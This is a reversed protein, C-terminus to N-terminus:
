VKALTRLLKRTADRVKGVNPDFRSLVMFSSVIGQFAQNAIVIEADDLCHEPRSVITLATLQLDILAELLEDHMYDVMCASLDSIVVGLWQFLAAKKILYQSGVSSKQLVQHLIDVIWLQTKGNESHGLSWSQFSSMLISLVHRRLLITVDRDDAIGGCRLFHLLWSREQQQHMLNAASAARKTNFAFLTYFMPVDDLEMPRSLLFQNVSTYLVHTPRQLVVLADQMFNTILAPIIPISDTKASKEIANTQLSALTIRLSELLLHIQRASKSGFLVKDDIDASLAEHVCAVIGFSHKRIAEDHSSLGRLALALLSHHIIAAIDLESRALFEVIVPFLTAPDYIQDLKADDMGFSEMVSENWHPLTLHLDQRTDLARTYPFSAITSRSRISTISSGEQFLLQAVPTPTDICETESSITDLFFAQTSFIRMKNETIEEIRLLLVRTLRDFSSLSMSYIECLALFLKKISTDDTADSPITAHLFQLITLSNTKKEARLYARFHNHNVVIRLSEFQVPHIISAGVQISRTYLSVTSRLELVSSSKLLCTNWSEIDIRSPRKTSIISQAFLDDLILCISDVYMCNQPICRWGMQILLEYMVGNKAQVLSLSAAHAHHWRNLYLFCGFAQASIVRKETMWACIDVLYKHMHTGMLQSVSMIEASNSLDNLYSKVFFFEPSSIDGKETLIASLCHSLVKKQLYCRPRSGAPYGFVRLVAQLVLIKSQKWRSELRICHDWVISHMSAREHRCILIFLLKQFLEELLKEDQATKAMHLAESEMVASVIPSATPCLEQCSKSLRIILDLCGAIHQAILTFSTTQFHTIDSLEFVLRKLISENSNPESESCIAHMSRVLVVKLLRTISGIQNANTEPLLAGLWKWRISDSYLEAILLTVPVVCTTSQILQQSCLDMRFRDPLKSLLALMVTWAARWKRAISSDSHQWCEHKGIDQFRVVIERLTHVEERSATQFIGRTFLHMIIDICISTTDTPNIPNWELWSLLQDCTEIAQHFLINSQWALTQVLRMRDGAKNKPFLLMRILLPLEMQSWFRGSASVPRQVNSAGLQQISQVYSLLSAFQMADLELNSRFIILLAPLMQPEFNQLIRDFSVESATSSALAALQELKASQTSEATINPPIICSRSFLERSDFPSAKTCLTILHDLLGSQSRHQTKDKEHRRRKKERDVNDCSDLGPPNKSKSLDGSLLLSQLPKSTGTKMLLSFLVRLGFANMLIEEETLKKMEEVLATTAPSLAERRMNSGSIPHSYRFLDVELAHLIRDIFAACVLAREHSCQSVIQLTTLWLAIEEDRHVIGFADSTVLLRHLAKKALSAIPTNSATAFFVLLQQFRSTKAQNDFLLFHLRCSDITKLCTLLEGVLLAESASLKESRGAALLDLPLVKALDVKVDKMHAHLWESYYNFLSLARAYLLQDCRNQDTSLRSLLSVVAEPSPLQLRLEEALSERIRDPQESFSSVRDVVNQLRMFAAQLFGLVNYVILRNTHQIGRSVENKCSFPFVLTMWKTNISVDLPIQIPIVLLAQIRCSSCFWQFTPRPEMQRSLAWTQCCSALLSPYMGLLERIFCWLYQSSQLDSFSILGVLQKIMNVSQTEEASPPPMENSNSAKELFFTFARTPELSYLIPSSRTDVETQEDREFFLYCLLEYACKSGYRRSIQSPEAPNSSEEQISDDQLKMLAVLKRIAVHNFVARKARLDLLTNDLVYQRMSLTIRLIVADSDSELSRFLSSLLGNERMLFRYVSKEKCKALTLVFDVFAERVQVDQTSGKMQRASLKQFIPSQLNMVRVCERATVDSVRCLCALLRLTEYELIPKDSWTLFKNLSARKEQLLRTAFPEIITLNNPLQVSFDVFVRVIKLYTAISERNKWRTMTNAATPDPWIRMLPEGQPSLELLAHLVSTNIKTSTTSTNSSIDIENAFSNVVTDLNTKAHDIAVLFGRLTLTSVHSEVSAM